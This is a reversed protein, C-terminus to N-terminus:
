SRGPPTTAVRATFKSEASKGDLLMLRFNSQCIDTRYVQVSLLLSEAFYRPLVAKFNLHLNSLYFKLSACLNWHENTCRPRECETRVDDQIRCSFAEIAISPDVEIAMSYFCYFLNSQQVWTRAYLSASTNWNTKFAKVLLKYIKWSEESWHTLIAATGKKQTSEVM